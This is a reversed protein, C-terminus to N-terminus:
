RTEKRVRDVVFPVVPILLVLLWPLAVVVRIGFYLAVLVAWTVWTWLILLFVLRAFGGFLHFPEAGADLVMPKANPIVYALLREDEIM